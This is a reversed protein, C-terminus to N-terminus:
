CEKLHNDRKWDVYGTSSQICYGLIPFFFFPISYLYTVQGLEIIMLGALTFLCYKFLMNTRYKFSKYLGVFYIYYYAFFGVLGSSALVEIYNNHSYTGLINTVNGFGIGLPNSLFLEFGGRALNMRINDSEGYMAFAESENFFDIKHGVLFYLPEVYMLALYLGLIGVITIVKYKFQAESNAIFFSVVFFLLIKRAGTLMATGAVFVLCIYAILRMVKSNDRNTFYLWSSFAFCMNMAVVNVNGGAIDAGIRSVTAYKLNSFVLSSDFFRALLACGCVVGGTGVFFIIMRPTRWKWLYIAICIAKICNKILSVTASQVSPRAHFCFLTFAMVAVVMGWKTIISLPMVKDHIIILCFYLLFVSQIVSFLSGYKENEMVFTAIIYVGIILDALKLKKSFMRNKTFVEAM